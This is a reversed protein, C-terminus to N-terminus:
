SGSIIMSFVYINRVRNVYDKYQEFVIHEETFTVKRILNKLDRFISVLFKNKYDIVHKNTRVNEAEEYKGQDYLIAQKQLKFYYDRHTIISPPVLININEDVKEDLNDHTIWNKSQEDLLTLLGHKKMLLEM